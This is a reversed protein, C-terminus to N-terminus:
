QMHLKYAQKVVEANIQFVQPFVVFIWYSHGTDHRTNSDLVEQFLDSM